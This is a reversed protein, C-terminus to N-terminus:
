LIICLEYMSSHTVPAVHSAEPMTADPFPQFILVPFLFPIPIWYGGILPLLIACLWYNTKLSGLVVPCNKYMRFTWAPDM